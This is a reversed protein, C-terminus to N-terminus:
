IRVTQVRKKLLLMVMSFSFVMISILGAIFTSLLSRATETDNVVLVPANDLLYGSVGKSECYFMIFAFALGFLSLLSPYFAIKSELKLYYSIFESFYKKM